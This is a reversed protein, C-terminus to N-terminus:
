HFLPGEYKRARSIFVQFIGAGFSSLGVTRARCQCSQTHHCSATRLFIQGMICQSLSVLPDLIAYFTFSPLHLSGRVGEQRTGDVRRVEVQLRDRCGSAATLEHRLRTFVRFIAARM